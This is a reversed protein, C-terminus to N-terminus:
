FPSLGQCNGESHCGACQEAEQAEEQCPHTGRGKEQHVQPHMQGQLSHAVGHCVAGLPHLWVGRPDHGALVQHIQHPM